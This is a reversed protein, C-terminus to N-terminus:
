WCGAFGTLIACWRKIGVREAMFLVSLLTAFIPVTFLLATSEALSVLSFGYVYMVYLRGWGGRQYNTAKGFRNKGGWLGELLVPLLIVFVLSARYLTIM